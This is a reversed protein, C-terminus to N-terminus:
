ALQECGRAEHRQLWVTYNSVPCDLEADAFTVGAM